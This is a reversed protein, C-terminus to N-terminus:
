NSTIHPYVVAVQPSGIATDYASRSVLYDHVAQLYNLRSQDLQSSAERVEIPSAVGERLRAEAYSFNLDAREVNQEQSTMRKQAARVDRLAREVEIRISHGLYEYGMEAKNMAIKRQQIRQSTGFGDFLNWSLRFGVNMDWDWYDSSFYSNSSSSFSFPNNPDSSIISRNDPVNGVYNLNLFANLEPLFGSREVQLQIRELEINIGAQELDPRNEAALIAADEVSIPIFGGAAGPELVGLLRLQQEVPIGILLKLDDLAGAYANEAQIYQTELNALEVEASLRQFKPATGLSVQRAMEARTRDARGVSQSLVNTLKEALLAQYFARKVNDILLQEQRRIAASNMPELWKKAGTAGFIVRGDFLKQTVSVGARYMNPINFPNDSSEVVIDAAELGAQRRAFYETVTIPVSDPDGDTRTQENYALWDIFGLTQFFGGAQSGAFPNVTRVNRTYGSSIDIQPYLEAWGEKIQARANDLDLRNNQITLNSVLAIQVAEDITLVVETAASHVWAATVNIQAHASGAELVGLALILSSRVRSKGSLRIPIQSILKVFTTSKM